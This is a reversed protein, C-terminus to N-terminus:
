GEFHYAKVKIPAVVILGVEEGNDNQKTTFKIPALIEGNENAVNSLYITVVDEGETAKVGKEFPDSQFAVKKGNLLSRINDDDVAYPVDSRIYGLEKDVTYFTVTDEHFHMEIFNEDRTGALMLLSNVAKRFARGELRIVCELNLSQLMEEYNPLGYTFNLFMFSFGDGTVVVTKENVKYHLNGHNGFAANWAAPQTCVNFDKTQSNLRFQSLTHNNTANITAVGDRVVFGVGERGSDKVGVSPVVKKQIHRIEEHTLDFEVEAAGADRKPKEAHGARMALHLSNSDFVIYGDDTFELFTEENADLFSASKVALSQLVKYYPSIWRDDVKTWFFGFNSGSEAFVFLLGKDCWLILEGSGNIPKVVNTSLISLKEKFDAVDVLKIKQSM